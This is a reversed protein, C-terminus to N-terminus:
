WPRRPQRPQQEQPPPPYSPQQQTPPQDQPAPQEQGRPSGPPTDPGDSGEAAGAPAETGDERASEEPVSPGPGTADRHWDQQPQQPQPQPQQYPQQYPQQSPQAYPQQYPPPYGYPPYQAGYPAPPRGSDYGQAASQDWGQGYGASADGGYPGGYQSGYQGGYQGGYQSGYPDYGAYSPAPTRRAFWDNAGGVFLLVVTAAAMLLTIASVVSMIGLLSVLSTMVASAVLLIRAVNSRRFTLVALVLSILSWVLLTLVIAWAATLVEGDTLVFESEAMGDRLERTFDSPSAALVLAALLMVMAVVGAGIWTLVCAGTVTGPRKDPDRQGGLESGAWGPAYAPGPREPEGYQQGPQGYSQGGPEGYQQGPQGYSQGGPEGYQQGPEHGPQQGPEHGPQQGPQQGPQGYGGGYPPPASPPSWGSAPKPQWGSSPRPHVPEPPGPQQQPWGAPGASEPRPDGESSLRGEAPVAGDFWDRAPRSWLLSVAVALLVPMLGSVPMTLILLATTVALGLRAGRHGQLAFIGLVFSTAALAGAVLGLVHLADLVQATELGLGNGPPEALFEDVSDRMDSGRLNGISDVLTLVLLASGVVAMVAAM